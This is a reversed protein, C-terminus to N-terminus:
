ERICGNNRDDWPSASAAQRCLPLRPTFDLRILARILNRLRGFEAPNFMKDTDRGCVGYVGDSLDSEVLSCIGSAERVDPAPQGYRSAM